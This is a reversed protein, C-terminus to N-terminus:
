VTQLPMAYGPEAPCPNLCQALRSIIDSTGHCFPDKPCIFESLAWNLRHLRILTQHKSASNHSVAFYVMHIM